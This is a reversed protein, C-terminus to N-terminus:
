ALPPAILIGAIAGGAIYWIPHKKFRLMLFLAVAFLVPAAPQVAGALAGGELIADLPIVSIFFVSLFASTILAAVTPRVGKFGHQVLRNQMFRDLIVAVLTVIILSPIVTGVTAVVGGLIGGTHYGVYTAANLGIPGPTSESIAIMNTVDSYTFWGYKDSLEYLFPLAALGGGVTFLGIKM